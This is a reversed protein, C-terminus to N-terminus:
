PTPAPWGSADSCKSNKQLTGAASWNLDLEDPTPDGDPSTNKVTGFNRRNKFIGGEKLRADACIQWTGFPLGPDFEVAGGITGPKKTVFGVLANSLARGTPYSQLGWTTDAEASDLTEVCAGPGAPVVLKAVVNASGLWAGGDKIRLPLAPLRVPATRIYDVGKESLQRANVAAWAQNLPTDPSEEVCKGAYVGYGTQFPFLNTATITAQPAPPSATGAFVRPGIPLGSNSLSLSWARSPAPVYTASAPNYYRTDFATTVQAREDYVLSTVTTSGPSVAGTTNVVPNGGPDVWRPKELKINYTQGPVPAFVACGTANTTKTQSYAALTGAISVPVGPEGLGLRNKVQVALTGNNGGATSIPPAVLSDIRVPPTQAGVTNSTVTSRLRLYDARGATSTCSPTGGDADSIWDVESVITYDIGGVNEPGRTERYEPLDIARMAHLREQDQEALASAVSRAKERGTSSAAGDLGALVGLALFALVAAAAIAEILAFGAQDRSFCRRKLVTLLPLGSDRNM